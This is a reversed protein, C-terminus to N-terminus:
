FGSNKWERLCIFVELPTKLKKRAYNEASQIVSPIQCRLFPNIQKEIAITSPLTPINKQRQEKVAHIKKEIVPNSSEVIKAFELNALTYEHGCYIHTADSLQFLKNLSHYMQEYTGEFVKGCGASFLTDGCFLIDSNYYAVHDLTHGPIELVHLMSSGCTVQDNDQVPQTVFQCSSKNSAIVSAKEWHQILKKIGGSHDQHHHTLLITILDIEFKNLEDIVPDADGPDVIFAQKNKKDIWTWIYNDKFARIVIIEEM